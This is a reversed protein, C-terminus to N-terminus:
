NIKCPVWNEKPGKPNTKLTTKEVWKPKLHSPLLTGLECLKRIPCLSNLHEGQQCYTCTRRTITFTKKKSVNKKWVKSTKKILPLPPKGKSTSAEHDNLSYSRSALECSGLGGGNCKISQTALIREHNMKSLKFKDLSENLQIIEVKAKALHQKLEIKELDVDSSNKSKEKLLSTEKELMAIKDNLFKTEKAMDIIRKLAKEHEVYLQDFAEDLNEDDELDNEDHSLSSKSSVESSGNTMYCIVNAIDEEEDDSDEDSTHGEERQAKMARRQPYKNLLPCDPKIHGPKKCHYCEVQNDKKPYNDKKQVNDNKLGFSKSAEGRRFNRKNFHRKFRKAFMGIADVDDEEGDLSTSELRELLRNLTDEDNTVKVIKTHLALNRRDIKDEDKERLKEQELQLEEASLSGMLEEFPLISLNKAEQIACAKNKFEKTLSGLIKSNLDRLSYDRGLARLKNVIVDFRSQMDAIKEGKKMCFLEYEKNLVGIRADKVQSTGEHTAKLCDWIEKATKCKQVRNHEELSLAQQLCNRAASNLEIKALEGDTLSDLDITAFDLVEEKITEMQGEKKKEEPDTENPNVPRRRSTTTYVKLNGDTIIRWMRFSKAEVFCQMRSSWFNYNTGDFLPPRTLSGGESFSHAM